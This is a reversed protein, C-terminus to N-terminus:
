VLQKSGSETGPVPWATPRWGCHSSVKEFRHRVSRQNVSVADGDAVSSLMTM